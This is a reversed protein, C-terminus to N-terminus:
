ARGKRTEVRREDLWRDLDSTLYRVARGARVYPPGDCRGLRSARLFSTSLGVYEAADREAVARRPTIPLTATTDKSM